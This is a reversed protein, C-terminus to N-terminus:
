DLLWCVTVLGSVLFQTEAYDADIHIPNRDGTIEAFTVVDRESIIKTDTAAMGKSIDNFYRTNSRPEQNAKTM